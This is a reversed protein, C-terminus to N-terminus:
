QHLKENGLLTTSTRDHEFLWKSIQQNFIFYLIVPYLM